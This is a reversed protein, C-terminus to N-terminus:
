HAERVPRAQRDGTVALSLTAQGPEDTFLTISERYRPQDVAKLWKPRIAVDFAVQGRPPIDLPLAQTALCTCSLNVGTLRILHRSWNRIVFRAHSNPDDARITAEQVEADATLSAGRLVAYAARPSGFYLWGLVLVGVASLVTLALPKTAWSAPRRPESM